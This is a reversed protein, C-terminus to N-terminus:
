PVRLEPECEYTGEYSIIKTKQEIKSKKKQQLQCEEQYESKPDTELLTEPVCM